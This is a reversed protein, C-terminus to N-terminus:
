HYKKIKRNKQKITLNENNPSNFVIHHQLTHRWHDHVNTHLKKIIGTEQILVIHWNHKNMALEVMHLMKSSCHINITVINLLAGCIAIPIIPESPTYNIDVANLRNGEVAPLLCLLTLIIATAITAPSTYTSLYDKHHHYKPTTPRRKTKYATNLYCPATSHVRDYQYIINLHSHTLVAPFTTTQSLTTNAHKIPNQSHTACPHGAAACVPLSSLITVAIILPLVCKIKIICSPFVSHFLIPIFSVPQKNDRALLQPPLPVQPPALIPPPPMPPLSQPTPPALVPAGDCLSTGNLPATCIGNHTVNRENTWTLLGTVHKLRRLKVSSIPRTANVTPNMEKRKCRPSPSWSPCEKLANGAQTPYTCLEPDDPPLSPCPPLPPITHSPLMM